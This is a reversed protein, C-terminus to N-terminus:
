DINLWSKEFIIKALYEAGKKTYHQNDYFIKFGDPTLLKCKEDKESCLYDIKNLYVIKNKKSLNELFSNTKNTNKINKYARKELDLMEKENPMRKSKYIFYDLLNFGFNTYLNLELTNGFIIPKKEDEIIKKVIDDLLELDKKYWKTSLVIIEANKYQDIINDGYERGRCKTSEFFILDYFCSVQYAMDQYTKKPNILTFNLEDYYNKGWVFVEYTDEAHSNGIILIDTKNSEQFNDYTQSIQFNLHERMYYGKDLNYNKTIQTRNLFGDKSISFLCVISIISITLFTFYLFLQNTIRKKDRFPQEIYKYSVYGILILLLGIFLQRAFTISEFTLYRNFAFLPYHWLYLSYSMLGVWVLIKSSLLKYIFTEKSIFLIILCTGIIPLATLLSPHYFDLQFYILSILIIILGLYPLFKFILRKRLFNENDFLIYAVLAGSLLEWLRSTIFYFDTFKTPAYFLFNEDIISTKNLNGLFQIVILNLAIFSLLLILVKDKFKNLIILFFIPFIIYFQEEVGLSWTHLLPKLLVSETGYTFHSLYFYFNSVYFLSFISSKSLEILGTPSLIFYGAILTTFCVVILAPMLRRLRRIYFNKLSFNGTIKKENLIISTILYGSIVFFIDVGLFGGTLFKNEFIYIESHYFIVSLIAIARLGDIEPRYNLKM